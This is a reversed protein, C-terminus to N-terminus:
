ANCTLKYNEVNNEQRYLVWLKANKDMSWKINAMAYCESFCVLVINVGPALVLPCLSEAVVGNWVLWSMVLQDIYM